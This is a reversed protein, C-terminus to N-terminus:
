QELLADRVGRARAEDQLDLFEHVSMVILWPKHDAKLMLISADDDLWRHLLAWGKARAKVEIYRQGYMLDAGEQYMGSIKRADLLAAAERERRAGKDRSPKGM